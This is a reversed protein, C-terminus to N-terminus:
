VGWTGASSVTPADDGFRAQLAVRLMGEAIPSRCINGTCVVLISTM